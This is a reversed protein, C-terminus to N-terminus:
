RNSPSIQMSSIMTLLRVDWVMLQGQENGAAAYIGCTPELSVSVIGSESDYFEATPLASMMGASPKCEWLKVTGDWSGSLLWRRYEDASLCSVSDDHALRKGLMSTLPISFSVCGCM